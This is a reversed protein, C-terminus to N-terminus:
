KLFSVNQIEFIGSSAAAHNEGGITSEYGALIGMLNGEKDFVGGGSNGGWIQCGVSQGSASFGCSSVKLKKNDNWFVDLYYESDNDLLYDLFNVVYPGSYDGHYAYVGGKGDFGYRREDGKAIIGKEDKLYRLYKTKYNSIEKDSMIKLAGYGIVKADYNFLQMLDWRHGEKDTFNTSAIQHASAISYIAWDGSRNRDSTDSAVTDFDGFKNKNATIEIDSQTRVTISDAVSGFRDAVCHKATYVYLNNKWKIITGTCYGGGITVVAVAANYPKTRKQADTVYCRKDVTYETPNTCHDTAMSVSPMFIMGALMFRCLFMTLHKYM